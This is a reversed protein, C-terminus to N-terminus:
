MVEYFRLRVCMRIILEIKEEEGLYDNTIFQHILHRQTTLLKKEVQEALTEIKSIGCRKISGKCCLTLLKWGFSKMGISLASSFPLCPFFHWPPRISLMGCLNFVFLWATESQVGHLEDFFGRDWLNQLWLQERKMCFNM